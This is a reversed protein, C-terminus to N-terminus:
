SYTLKFVDMSFRVAEDKIVRASEEKWRTHGKFFDDPLSLAKETALRMRKVTLDDRNGSKFINAVADRLGKELVADSPIDAPTPPQEAESM